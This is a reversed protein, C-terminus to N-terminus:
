PSVAGQSLGWHLAKEYGKLARPVIELPEDRKNERGVWTPTSQDSLAM